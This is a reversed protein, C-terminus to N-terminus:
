AWASTCVGDDDDDNGEDNADVVDEGNDEGDGTAAVNNQVGAGMRFVPAAHSDGLDDEGVVDSDPIAASGAGAEAAEFTFTTASAAAAAAAPAAPMRVVAEGGGDEREVRRRKPHTDHALADDYEEDAM